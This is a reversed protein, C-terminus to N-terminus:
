ILRITSLNSKALLPIRDNRKKKKKKITVKYKKIGATLAWIKLEAVSSTIGLPFGVLSAFASISACGSVASVFILFYEFYNLFRGVNKNKRSMLNNHKIEEVKIHWM